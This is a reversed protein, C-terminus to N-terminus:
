CVILAAAAAALDSWDHGVRHLGMAPLGGPEGMGPIRSSSSLRKLRTRSQAVGYVAAWWAGGDRPNELCSCRLPNGTGEGICLLSFPFHLWPTTDLEWRGWPSCGVLSRWGHFKGPLLVPTPHWQRRGDICTQTYKKFRYTKEHITKKWQKWEYWMTKILITKYYSKLLCVKVFKSFKFKKSTLDPWFAGEKFLISHFCQWCHICLRHSSSTWDAGGQRRTLVTSGAQPEAATQLAWSWMECGGREGFVFGVEWLWAQTSRCSQVSSIKRRKSVKKSQQKSIVLYAWLLCFWTVQTIPHNRDEVKVGWWGREM